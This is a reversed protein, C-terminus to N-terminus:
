LSFLSISFPISLFSGLSVFEAGTARVKKAYDEYTVFIVKHGKFFSHSIILFTPFSFFFFFFFLLFLAFSVLGRQILVQSTVLQMEIVSVSNHPSSFLFTESSCLFPSLSLFLFLPLLSTMAKVDLRQPLCFRAVSLIMGKKIKIM